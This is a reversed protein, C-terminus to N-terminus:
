VEKLVRVPPVVLAEWLPDNSPEGLWYRHARYSIALASGALTLHRMDGVFHRDAEIEWIPDNARGFEERFAKAAELNPSGFVSQYRSPRDPFESRRVYEFLLDIVDNARVPRDQLLFSEGHDTVGDPFLRDVHVLLVSDVHAAGINEARVLDLTRGAELRRRRDVTYLKPM